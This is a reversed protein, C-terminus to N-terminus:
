WFDKFVKVNPALSTGKCNLNFLKLGSVSFSTTENTQALVVGGLYQRYFTFGLNPNWLHGECILNVFETVM